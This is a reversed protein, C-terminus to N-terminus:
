NGRGIVTIWFAIAVAALHRFAGTLLRLDSKFQEKSEELVERVSFALLAVVFDVGRYNRKDSRRIGSHGQNDPGNM